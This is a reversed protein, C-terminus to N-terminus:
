YLARAIGHAFCLADSSVCLVINRRQGILHQQAGIYFQKKRLIRDTLMMNVLALVASVDSGTLIDTLIVENKVLGSAGPNHFAYSLFSHLSVWEIGRHM